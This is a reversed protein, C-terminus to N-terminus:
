SSSAIPANVWLIIASRRGGRWAEKLEMINSSPKSRSNSTLSNATSMLRSRAQTRGAPQPRAETIGMLPDVAEAMDEAPSDMGVLSDVAEVMDVAPNDMGALFDMFDQDDTVGLNVM